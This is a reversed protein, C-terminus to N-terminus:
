EPSPAPVIELRLRVPQQLQESLKAQLDMLIPDSLARTSYEYRSALVAAGDTQSVLMCDKLWHALFPSSYATDLYAEILQKGQEVLQESPQYKSKVLAEWEAQAAQREARRAEDAAQEFQAEAERQARGKFGKPPQYDEEIAKRLYGAPNKKVQLSGSEVLYDLLEIKSQLYDPPHKAALSQATKRTIGKQFLVDVLAQQQQELNKDLTEKESRQSSTERGSHLIKMAPHLIKMAPASSEIPDKLAASERMRLGYYKKIRARDSANVEEILLGHAVALRLGDIVSRNSLGTGKDLRTGDRKVRGRMFENTTIKKSMGFEQYGWTHKLVYEVLKLEALSTIEATLDTWEMPMKFYNSRPQDFGQFAPTTPSRKTM